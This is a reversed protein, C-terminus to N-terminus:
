NKRELQGKYNQDRKTIEVKNNKVKKLVKNKICM